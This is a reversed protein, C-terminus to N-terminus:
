LEKLLPLYDSAVIHLLHAGNESVIQILVFDSMLVLGLLVLNTIHVM